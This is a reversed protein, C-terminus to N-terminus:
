VSKKTATVVYVPDGVIQKKKNRTSLDIAKIDQFSYKSCVDSGGGSDNGSCCFHLYCGVLYAHDIDDSGTWVGVAKSLFLRNSFIIHISGSGPKLVRLCEKLVQLPQILYDISLQCTIVDFTNDDYPLKPNKVNLDQVVYDTLVVNSQLEKENMGLGSIRGKVSAAAQPIIHSTWSSCLDLVNEVKSNKSGLIVDNSIYNTIINVANEDVHEVFRPTSYFITDSSADLRSFLTSKSVKDDELFPNEIDNWSTPISNEIENVDPLSIGTKPDISTAFAPQPLSMMTATTSTAMIMFSKFMGDQIMVKRSMIADVKTTRKEERLRDKIDDDYDFGLSTTSDSSNKNETSAIATVATHAVGPRSDYSTMVHPYRPSQQMRTRRGDNDKRMRLITSSFAMVYHGTPRRRTSGNLWGVFFTVWLIIRIWPIPATTVSSKM